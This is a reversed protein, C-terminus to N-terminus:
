EVPTKFYNFFLSAMFRPVYKYGKELYQHKVRIYDKYSKGVAKRIADLEEENLLEYDKNIIVYNIEKVLHYKKDTLALHSYNFNALEKFHMGNYRIIPYHGLELHKLYETLGSNSFRHYLARAPRISGDKELVVYNTTANSVFQTNNGVYLKKQKIGEM